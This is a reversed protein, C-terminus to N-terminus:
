KHFTNLFFVCNISACNWRLSTFVSLWRKSFNDIVRIKGVRDTHLKGYRLYVPFTNSLIQFKLSHSLIHKFFHTLFQSLKLEEEILMDKQFIAKEAFCICTKPTCWLGFTMSGFKALWPIVFQMQSKDDMKPPFTTPPPPTFDEKVSCPQQQWFPPFLKYRCYSLM